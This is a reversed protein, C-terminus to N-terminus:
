IILILTKGLQNKSEPNQTISFLNERIIKFHFLLRLRKQLEEKNNCSSTTQRIQYGRDEIREETRKPKAFLLNYKTSKKEFVSLIIFKKFITRGFM